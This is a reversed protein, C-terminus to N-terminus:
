KRKRGRQIQPLGYKERVYDNRLDVDEVLNIGARKYMKKWCDVGFQFDKQFKILAKNQKSTVITTILNDQWLNVYEEKNMPSKRNLTHLAIVKYTIPHELSVNDLNSVFQKKAKKIKSELAEISVMGTKTGHIGAENVSCELLRSWYVNPDKKYQDFVYLYVNYAHKIKLDKEYQTLM